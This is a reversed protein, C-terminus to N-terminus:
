NVPREKLMEEFDKSWNAVKVAEGGLVDSMDRSPDAACLEIGINIRVTDRITRYLREKVTEKKCLLLEEFALRPLIMHAREWQGLDLALRMQAVIETYRSPDSNPCNETKAM